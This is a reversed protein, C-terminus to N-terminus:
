PGQDLPYAAFAASGMCAVVMLLIACHIVLRCENEFADCDKFKENMRFSRGFMGRRVAERRIGAGAQKKDFIIPDIKHRVPLWSQRARICYVLNDVGFAKLSEWRGHTQFLPHGTVVFNTVSHAAVVERLEERHFAEGLEHWIALDLDFKGGILHGDGDDARWSLLSVHRFVSDVKVSNAGYLLEVRLGTTM